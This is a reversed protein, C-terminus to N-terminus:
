GVREWGEVKRLTAGLREVMSVARLGDFPM